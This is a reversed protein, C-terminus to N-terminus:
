VGFQEKLHPEILIKGVRGDEGLSQLAAKMRSTEPKVDPWGGQLWTLNWRLTMMNDPCDTPGSEFAFYGIPSATFNPLYGSNGEYYLALDVKRGDNHSLHPLLPFGTLFPFNADLVLTTTGPFVSEMHAAHDILVDRLEPVVYQRNLVCYLKSQMHLADDGLCPLPERGLIPAMWLAAVSLATYAAVFVVARHRFCLAFLWAVGGLQSLLTLLVFILAHLLGRYM